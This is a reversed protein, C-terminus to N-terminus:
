PKQESAAESVAHLGHADLRLVRDCREAAAASHTVILAGAGEERTLALLLAMVSAARDPDLNGTPEDALLLGPRHVLARAIAVRQAEGGSLRGPLADARHTLGVADLLRRAPERAVAEGQGLLWLPLAVNQLVSLHPLLHFAQFVFGIRRRRLACLASDDLGDLSQGEIEVTSGPRVPALGAVANLLTSKGVGSEGIIAVREGHGLSLTVGSFLVSSADRDVSVSLSNLRLVPSEPSRAYRDVETSM